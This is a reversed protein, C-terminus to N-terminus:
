APRTIHSKEPALLVCRNFTDVEAMDSLILLDPLCITLLYIGYQLNM